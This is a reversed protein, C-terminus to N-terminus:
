YCNEVPIGIIIKVSDSEECGLVLSVSSNPFIEFSRKIEDAMLQMRYLNTLCLNEISIIVANEKQYVHILVNITETTSDKTNILVGLILLLLSNSPVYINLIENDSIELSISYINGSSATMLEVFLLIIDYEEKLRVLKSEELLYYKLFQIIKSLQKQTNVANEALSIGYLGNMLKLLLFRENSEIHLWEKFLM